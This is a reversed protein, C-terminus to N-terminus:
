PSTRNRLALWGGMCEARLPATESGTNATVNDPMLLNREVTCQELLFRGKIQKNLADFFQILQAEHLLDFQLAMNSKLLDFNGSHLPLVPSFPQQPSITYKFDLVHNQRQIKELGEIWDLRQASNIINRNLLTSYGVTYTEMNERDAKADILQARAQNLQRQATLQDTHAGLLFSESAMIAMGALVITLLFAFAGLKIHPWDSKSFTM